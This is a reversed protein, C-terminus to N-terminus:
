YPVLEATQDSLLRKQPPGISFVRLTYESPGRFASAQFNTTVITKGKDEEMMFGQDGFEEGNEAILKMQFLGGSGEVKTNLAFTIHFCTPASLASLVELDPSQKQARYKVIEEGLYGDENLALNWQGDIEKLKNNATFFRITEVEVVAERLKPIRGKISELVVYFQIESKVYDIDKVMSFSNIVHPLTGAKLPKTDPIIETIYTGDGNKVRFDLNVEDIGQLLDADEFGATMIFAMKYADYLYGDLSFAINKDSAESDIPKLLGEDVIKGIGADRFGLFGKIGAIVSSNAALMGLVLICAAAVLGKKWFMNVRAKKRYKKIEGYTNDLATRVAAPIEKNDHLVEYIKKEFNNEM